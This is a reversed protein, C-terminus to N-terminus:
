CHEAGHEHQHVPHGFHRDRDHPACHHHTCRTKEGSRDHARQHQRILHLLLADLEDFITRCLGGHNMKTGFLRARLGDVRDNVKGLKTLNGSQIALKEELLLRCALGCFKEINEELKGASELWPDPSGDSGCVAEAEELIAKIGVALTGYELGRLGRRWDLLWEVRWRWMLHSEGFGILANVREVVRTFCDIAKRGPPANFRVTPKAASPPVSLPSKRDLYTLLNLFLLNGWADGPTELHPYSLILRGKGLEAELIAPHGLIRAPNLNIGYVREWEEWSISLSEMDAVPLDAVRFDNGAATYTALCTSRSLSQRSFQSPWWVSVPIMAPLGNWAPHDTGGQVWVEGSASPLRQSLDMREIQVLGLTSSGALALGAGGCFGFYGGGNEVFGRIQRKGADGLVHMKHAAWGGPVLLIRYSALKGGAIDEGSLLHFPVNSRRLTEVCILGWVLSQDWFLAVPPGNWHTSDRLPTDIM